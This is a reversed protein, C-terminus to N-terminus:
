PLVITKYLCVFVFVLHIRVLKPEPIRSLDVVTSATLPSSAPSKGKTNEARVQFTYSQLQELGRIVCPNAYQCDDEHVAENPASTSRYLVTYITTDYGGNFGEDWQLTLADYGAHVVRLNAPKEPASTPQLRVAAANEGEGNWVKCSYDGYDSEKVDAIRLVGQFLEHGNPGTVSTVNTEYKGDGAAIQADRFSWEFSPRPYAQVQCVLLASSSGVNAAVKPRHDLM